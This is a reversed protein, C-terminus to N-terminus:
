KHMFGLVEIIQHLFFRGISEGMAGNSECLNFLTGNPIYELLIYVLDKVVTGSPKMVTGNKGTEICKVIGHHDLMKLIAIENEVTKLNRLDKKLYEDRLLKM